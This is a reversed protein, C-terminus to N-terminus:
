PAPAVAEAAAASAPTGSRLQSFVRVLSMADERFFLWVAAAYTIGGVAMKVFLLTLL